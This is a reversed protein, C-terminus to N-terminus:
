LAIGGGDSVGALTALRTLTATDAEANKTEVFGSIGLVDAAFGVTGGAVGAWAVYRLFARRTVGQKRLVLDSEDIKDGPTLGHSRAWSSPTTIRGRQDVKIPRPEPSVAADPNCVIVGVPVLRM